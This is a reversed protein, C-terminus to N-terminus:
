TLSGGSVERCVEAEREGAYTTFPFVSIFWLVQTSPLLAMQPSHHSKLVLAGSPQSAGRPLFVCVRSSGSELRCVWTPGAGGEQLPSKNGRVTRHCRHSSLCAKNQVVPFLPWSLLPTMAPGTTLEGTAGHSVPGCTDRQSGM